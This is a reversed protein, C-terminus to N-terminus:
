REGEEREVAAEILTRLYESSRYGKAKALRDVRKWLSDPLGLSKQRLGEKQKPPVLEDKPTM